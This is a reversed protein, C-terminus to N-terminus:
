APLQTHQTYKHILLINSINLMCPMAIKRKVAPDAAAQGGTLQVHAGCSILCRILMM